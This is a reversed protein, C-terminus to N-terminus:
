EAEDLDEEDDSGQIQGRSAEARMLRRIAGCSVGPFQAAVKRLSVGSRVLALAEARQEPSLAPPTPPPPLKEQALKPVTDLGRRWLRGERQEWQDVLGLALVLLM